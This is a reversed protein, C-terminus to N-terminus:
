SLLKKRTQKARLNVASRAIAGVRLPVLRAGNRAGIGVRDHKGRVLLMDKVIADM